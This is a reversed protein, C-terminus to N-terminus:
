VLCVFFGVSSVELLYCLLFGLHGQTQCHSKLYLMLLVILSVVSLSSKMLIFIKKKVLCLGPSVNAFSVNSLPSYDSICLSSKLGFLLLVVQHEFPGFLQASM